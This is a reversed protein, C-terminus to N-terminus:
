KWGKDARIELRNEVFNKMSRHYSGMSIWAGVVAVATGVITDLMRLLPQRWAHDPSMAAVVVVVATTIGTTVVDDLRGLLSMVVAGLGILAAMGWIHFPFVLLYIFCLLFSLSTATIRSLAGVVSEKYSYRYVFITAVVAWMGGLLEDDRSVLFTRSLLHTILWYSIVCLISLAVGHLVALGTRAPDSRIETYQRNPLAASWPTALKLLM